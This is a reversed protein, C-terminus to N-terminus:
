FFIVYTTWLITIMLVLPILINRVSKKPSVSAHDKFMFYILFITVVAVFLSTNRHSNWTYKTDIIGLVAIIFPILKGFRPIM